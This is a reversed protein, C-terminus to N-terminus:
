AACSMGRLVCGDWVRLGVGDGAAVSSRTMEDL